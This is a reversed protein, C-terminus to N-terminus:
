AETCSAPRGDRCPEAEESTNRNGNRVTEPRQRHAQGETEMEKKGGQPYGKLREKRTGKDDKRTGKDDEATSSSLRRTM